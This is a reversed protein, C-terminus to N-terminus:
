VIGFINKVTSEDSFFVKNDGILQYQEHGKGAILVIDGDKANMLAYKVAEYRDAILVLKKKNKIGKIIDNAIEEPAENRPNDTTVVIIDSFVDAIRGMEKRKPKDRNGGCGFVTIIRNRKVACLEILVAMLAQPTHAFDVYVSIGSHEIRQLRGPIVPVSKMGHSIESLSMGLMNVASAAALTNYVTINGLGNCEIKEIGDRSIFYYCINNENYVVNKANFDAFCNTVSYFFVRDNEEPIMCSCFEDDMNLLIRDCLGFLKSKAKVYEEFNGHYDLHDRGINTFIGLDFNIDGLRRQALAQSSVEVVCYECGEDAFRRLQKYFIEPLPTTYGTEVCDVVSKSGLTGILAAKRGGSNLLHAIYTGVTTKGNTGTVGILSLHNQPYGYFCSCLKCLAWRADDTKVARVDPYEEESVVCCAGKRFAAEINKNGDTKEGKVAVFVSNREVSQINETVSTVTIHENVDTIGVASMLIKLNM